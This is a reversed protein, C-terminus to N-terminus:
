VRILLYLGRVLHKCTKLRTKAGRKLVKEVVVDDDADVNISQLTCKIRVAQVQRQYRSDAPIYLAEEQLGAQCCLQPLNTIFIFVFLFCVSPEEM